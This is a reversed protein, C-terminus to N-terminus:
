SPGDTTPRGPDLGDDDGAPAEQDSAEICDQSNFQEWTGVYKGTRICAAYAIARVWTHPRRQFVGELAEAAAYDRQDAVVLTEGDRGDLTVRIPVQLAM